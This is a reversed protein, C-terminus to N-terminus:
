GRGDSENGASFNSCSQAGGATECIWAEAVTGTAEQYQLVMADRIPEARAADALAVVCGGFGGGTLRAGYCGDLRAAIEVLLDCERCSAEFDDRFSAHAELLLQGFDAVDGRRLMEAGRLVRGSDTIVHRCRRFVVEPMAPRAEELQTLSVDRLKHFDAGPFLQALIRTGEEVQARREKYEVGAVAHRVMSNVIVLRVSEPLPVTQYELSRCDLVLANGVSGHVCAFPDMIGCPAGVFENEAAQCLLALERSPVHEGALWLLALASAVELAASSSLGANRPLDGSVTVDAGTTRIGRRALQEVVGLVYDQWRANGERHLPKDLRRVVAEDLDLSFLHLEHDTRPSIAVCNYLNIAAPMCFGDSYDTHEGLLNVRGPARFLAPVAGTRRQHFAALELETQSRSPM